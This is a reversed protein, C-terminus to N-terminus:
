QQTSNTWWGILCPKTQVFQKWNPSISSPNFLPTEVTHTHTRVHINVYRAPTASSLILTPYGTRDKLEVTHSHCSLSATRANDPLWWWKHELCDTFISTCGLDCVDPSFENHKSHVSLPISFPPARNNVSEFRDPCLTSCHVSWVRLWCWTLRSGLM